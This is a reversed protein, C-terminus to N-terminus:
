HSLSKACPVRVDAFHCSGSIARVLGMPTPQDQLESPNLGERFGDHSALDSLSPGADAPEIIREAVGIAGCV